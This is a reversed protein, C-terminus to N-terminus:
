RMRKELAWNKCKICKECPKRDATPDYCSIISRRFKTLEEENGKLLRKTKKIVQIHNMNKLIQFDFTFDEKYLKLLKKIAKFFVKRSDGLENEKFGSTIKFDTSKIGQHNACAILYSALVSFLVLNRNEIEPDEEGDKGKFAQSRCWDFLESKLSIIVPDKIISEDGLYGRIYKVIEKVCECEIHASKHGYDFFIPYIFVGSKEKKIGKALKLISYASDLGGSLLHIHNGESNLTIERIM